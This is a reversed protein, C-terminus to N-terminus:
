NKQVYNKYSDFIDQDSIKQNCIGLDDVGARAKQWASQSHTFKELQYAKYKGFIMLIEDLFKIINTDINPIFNSPTCIPSMGYNKYKRYIRPVVPGHAWAEFENKFLKKLNNSYEDNEIVLFMGYSIFLLKQLKKPTICCPSLFLLTDAIDEVNCVNLNKM